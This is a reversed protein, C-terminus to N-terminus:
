RKTVHMKLRPLFLQPADFCFFADQALTVCEMWGNATTRFISWPYLSCSDLYYHCLRRVVMDLATNPRSRCAARAIRGPLASEVSMDIACM